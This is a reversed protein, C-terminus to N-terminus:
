ADVAVNRRQSHLKIRGSVTGVRKSHYLMWKHTTPRSVTKKVREEFSGARGYFSRHMTLEGVTGFGKIAGAAPDTQEVPDEPYGTFRWFNSGSADYVIVEGAGHLHYTAYRAVQEAAAAPYLVDKVELSGPYIVHVDRFVEEIAPDYNLTGIVSHSSGIGVEGPGHRNSGGEGSDFMKTLQGIREGIEALAQRGTELNGAAETFAGQLRAERAKVYRRVLLMWAPVALVVILAAIASPNM